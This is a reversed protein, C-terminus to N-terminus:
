RPARRRHVQHRGVLGDETVIRVLEALTNATSGWYGLESPYGDVWMEVPRAVWRGACYGSHDCERSLAIDGITYLGPAHRKM